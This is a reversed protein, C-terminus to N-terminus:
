QFNRIAPISLVLAICAMGLGSFIAITAVGGILDALWGVLIYGVPLLAFSGLLDLSAVRGFAEQPVLEQMSIEWILMFVMLGFGELSFLIVAGAASPVFPLLLLSVGSIFAGGYAMLGRRSWRQRTGFILGALIAGAGSCTVALGYLYPEWGHHVKFLWPVLISTIGGYCINIFSFALITIWLWPHSRLVALGEMFDQKWDTSPSPAAMSGATGSADTRVRAILTRRLYILCIFSFVYTFADLGFGIGASLHTILLGGLAPGILRVTQTTIQTVSNATVRIDPTFITARVAAYAPQFLGDLLGYCGILVLLLPIILLGTLALVATALMILARFIDALMMIGVRDYRDVIHGSVPLMLINPLMYVAMVVGMTTTSGTLSYVLVPLIVMTVSSGLFSILHGLWLFPFARSKAFPAAFGRFPNIKGSESNSAPMM